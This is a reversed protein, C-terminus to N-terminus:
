RKPNHHARHCPRWLCDDIPSYTGLGSFAELQMSLNTRAQDGSEKGNKNNYYMAFGLIKSVDWGGIGDNTSIQGVDWGGIDGNFAAIKSVDWGGIDKIIKPEEWDDDATIGGDNYKAIASLFGNYFMGQEDNPNAKNQMEAETIDKEKQDVADKKSCSSILFLALIMAVNIKFLNKM